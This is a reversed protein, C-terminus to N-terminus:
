PRPGLDGSPIVAGGILDLAGLPDCSDVGSDMQVEEVALRVLGHEGLEGVNQRSRVAPARLVQLPLPYWWPPCGYGSAVQSPTVARGVLATVSRDCSVVESRCVMARGRSGDVVLVGEQTLQWFYSDIRPFLQVGEGPSLARLGGENSVLFDADAALVVSLLENDEFDELDLVPVEPRVIAGGSMDILEWLLRVYETVAETEWGFGRRLVHIINVFTRQSGFLACNFSSDNVGQSVVSLASLSPNGLNPPISM